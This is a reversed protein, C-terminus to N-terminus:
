MAAQIRANDIVDERRMRCVVTSDVVVTRVVDGPGRDGREHGPSWDRSAGGAMLEETGQVLHGGRAGTATADLPPVVLIPGTAGVCLLDDLNM